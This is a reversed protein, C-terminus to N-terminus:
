NSLVLDFFEEEEEKFSKLLLGQTQAINIMRNNKNNLICEYRKIIVVAEQFNNIHIVVKDLYIMKIGRKLLNM